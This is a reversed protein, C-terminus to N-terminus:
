GDLRAFKHNFTGGGAGRKPAFITLSGSNADNWKFVFRPGGDRPTYEMTDNALTAQVFRWGMVGQRQTVLIAECAHHEEVSMVVMLSKVQGGGPVASEFGFSGVKNRHPVNAAPRWAILGAPLPLRNQQAYGYANTLEIISSPDAARAAATRGPTGKLVFPAEYTSQDWLVQRGQTAILLDRRLTGALTRFDVSGGDFQRMLAAAFPSNEGAPGDVAVRGPATSYLALTNPARNVPQEKVLAAEIAEKQRWGDAPNNRCNDFVLFRNAAATMGQALGPVPVLNKIAEPNGLDADAPVLYTDRGWVAGHGAFYFAAFRQGALSSLFKEISRKMADLSADQILETKLGFAQFRRAIDPVDRKVNPLSAEWQYKSNGIVLAVGAGTQAQARIAPASLALGGVGALLARRRLTHLPKPEPM